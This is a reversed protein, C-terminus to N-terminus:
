QGIVNLLQQPLRHKDTAFLGRPAGAFEVLGSQWIGKAALCNSVAVPVINVETTDIIRAPVKFASLEPRFDTSAFSAACGLSTPLSNGPAWQVTEQGVAKPKAGVAFFKPCDEKRALATADFAAQDTERPKDSTKLRLPQTTSIPLEAKGAHCSVLDMVYLEIKDSTTVCHMRNGKFHRLDDTRSLARTQAIGYWPVRPRVSREHQWRWGATTPPLKSDCSPNPWAHPM